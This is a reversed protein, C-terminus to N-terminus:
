FLPILILTNFPNFFFFLNPKNLLAINPNVSKV